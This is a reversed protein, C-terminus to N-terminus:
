PSGEGALEVAISDGAAGLEIVLNARRAGAARPVFRLGVVCDSGPAVYPIGACSAPVLHFDEADAGALRIEGLELRATGTSAVRVSEIGSRDGVQWAGFDVGRPRVEVAAVPATFGGGALEVLLAEGVGDHEIRLTATRVGPAGTPAFRVEIACTQGDALAAGPPCSAAARFDAAAAGGVAVHRLTAPEGGISEVVVSLRADAGAEVRGFELRQPQASLRRATGRGVLDVQPRPALGPARPALSARVGGEATPRFRVAAGCNDGPALTTGCDQEVIQFAGRGDGVLELGALALPATGTNELLVSIARSEAGVRSGGFDVREPTMLLGPAVGFGALAVEPAAGADSAIALTATAEGVAAPRFTWSATCTAGPALSRGSCVDAAGAFHAAGAGRLVLRELRLPASGANRLTLVRAASPQGVSQRSFDLRQPEAALRPATARGALPLRRAGGNGTVALEARRSGVEVPAFVVSVSCAAGRMLARGTCTDALISFDGGNEGAVAVGALRLARRGRNAFRLAEPESRGGLLQEGFDLAGPVVELRPPAWVFWYLLLGAAVAATLVWRRRAGRPGRAVQFRRDPLRPPLTDYPSPAKGRRSAAGRRLPLDLFSGAEEDRPHLPPETPSAPAM